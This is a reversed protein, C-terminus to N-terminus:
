KNLKLIVEETELCKTCYALYSREERSIEKYFGEVVRWNHKCQKEEEM